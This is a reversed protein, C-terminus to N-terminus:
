LSKIDNIILNISELKKVTYDKLGEYDRLKIFTKCIDLEEGTATDYNKEILIIRESEKVISVKSSDKLEKYDSIKM